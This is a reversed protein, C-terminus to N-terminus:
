EIMFSKGVSLPGGSFAPVSAARYRQAICTGTATGAYPAGVDVASVSGTPQFTVKVHGAGTPGDARKCSAVSIGLARAAAPRDFPSASTV